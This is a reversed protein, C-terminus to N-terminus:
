AARWSEVVGIASEALDAVTEASGGGKITVFMGLLLMLAVNTRAEIDGEIEGRAASAELATRFAHRVRARYLEGRESVGTETNALEVLSNVVLCGKTAKAPEAKRLGAIMSFWMTIGEIGSDDVREFIRELPGNLYWDISKHLMDLKAGYAAYLRARALGTADELDGISTAEYGQTWFVDAIQALALGTDFERPRAM